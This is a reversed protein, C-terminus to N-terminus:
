QVFLEIQAAAKQTQLWENLKIEQLARRADVSLPHSPDREIVFIIHYGLDSKIIESYQGPQLAFAATEVGPQTLYGQPFWGLDGGTTPDLTSALTAFDKGDKLQSLLSQANVEDQVLIQMAHVQDATEPVSNIIQDRQWDAYIERKLALRFSEDTYGNTSEWSNLKDISGLTTVLADIRAQIAADDVSFGSKQAEQGLLLQVTFNDIVRDRQEQPTATTGLDSQAKQLRALDAQYETLSIGEGNVKLAMPVETPTPFLTPSNTPTSTPASTNAKCGTLLFGAFLVILISTPIRKM